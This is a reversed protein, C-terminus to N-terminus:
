LTMGVMHILYLRAATMATAMTRPSCIFPAVVKVMTCCLHAERCEQANISLDTDACEYLSSYISRNTASVPLQNLTVMSHVGDLDDHLHSLRDISAMNHKTHQAGVMCKTTAGTAM